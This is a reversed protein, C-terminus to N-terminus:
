RSLLIMPVLHCVQAMVLEIDKPDVGTEDVPGDDEPEQLAPPEDDDGDNTLAHELGTVGGSGAVQQAASLGAQSNM